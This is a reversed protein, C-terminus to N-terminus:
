HGYVTLLTINHLVDTKRGIKSSPRRDNETKGRETVVKHGM